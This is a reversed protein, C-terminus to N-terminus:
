VYHARISSITRWDRKLTNKIFISQWMSIQRITLFWLTWMYVNIYLSINAWQIHINQLITSTKWHYSILYIKWSPCYVCLLGLDNGITVMNGIYLRWCFCSLTDIICKVCKDSFDPFVHTCAYAKYEAYTLLIFWIRCDWYICISNHIWDHKNILRHKNVHCSLNHWKRPDINTTYICLHLCKVTVRVKLGYVYLVLVANCHYIIAPVM